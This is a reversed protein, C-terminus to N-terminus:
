VVCARLIAWNHSNFPAIKPRHPDGKYNAVCPMAPVEDDEKNPAERAAACISNEIELENDLYEWPPVDDEESEVVSAPAAGSTSAESDSESHIRSENDDSFLGAIGLKRM